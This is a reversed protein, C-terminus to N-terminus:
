LTKTGADTLKANRYYSPIWAGPLAEVAPEPKPEPKALHANIERMLRVLMARRRNCTPQYYVLLCAARALLAKSRRDSHSTM